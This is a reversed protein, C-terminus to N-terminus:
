LLYYYDYILCFQLENEQKLNLLIQQMERWTFQTNSHQVSPLFCSVKVVLIEDNAKPFQPFTINNLLDDTNPLVQVKQFPLVNLITQM